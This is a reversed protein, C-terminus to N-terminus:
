RLVHRGVANRIASDCVTSDCLITTGALATVTSSPCSAAQLLLECETSYLSADEM